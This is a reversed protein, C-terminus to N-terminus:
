SHLVHVKLSMNCGMDHYHRLLDNVVQIYEELRHKGLFNDFKRSHSLPLNKKERSIHPSLKMM